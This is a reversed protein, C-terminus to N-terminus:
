KEPKDDDDKPADKPPAEMKVGDKAGPIAPMAAPAPFASEDIAKLDAKRDKEALLSYQNEGKGQTDFRGWYVKKRPNYYYYYRPSSKYYIVYDYTYDADDDAPKYYYYRYYYGRDAAHGWRSYHQRRAAAQSEPLLSVGVLGLLLGGM